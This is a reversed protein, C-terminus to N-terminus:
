ILSATPYTGSATSTSVSSSAVRRTQRTAFTDDNQAGTSCGGHRAVLGEIRIRLEQADVERALQQGARELVRQIVQEIVFHIQRM